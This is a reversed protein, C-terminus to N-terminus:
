WPHHKDHSCTQTCTYTLAHSRLFLYYHGERLHLTHKGRPHPTQLEITLKKKEKKKKVQLVGLFVLCVRPISDSQGASAIGVM